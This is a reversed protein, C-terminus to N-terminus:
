FLIKRAKEIREFDKDLTLIVANNNIATAAVICDLTPVYKGTKRCTYQIEKATSADALSVGFVLLKSLLASAKEYKELNIKNLVECYCIVSTCLDNKDTELFKTAKQGEVTGQLIELIISSDLLYKEM